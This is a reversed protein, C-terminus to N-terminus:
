EKHLICSPLLAAGATAPPRADAIVKYELVDEGAPAATDHVPLAVGQLGPVAEQDKGVGGHLILPSPLLRPFVGPHPEVARLGPPIHLLRTKGALGRHAPAVAAPLQGRRRSSIRPARPVATHFSKRM